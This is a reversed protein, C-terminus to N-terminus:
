HSGATGEGEKANSFIIKRSYLHGRGGRVPGTGRGGKKQAKNHM